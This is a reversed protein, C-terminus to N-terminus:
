GAPPKLPLLWASTDRLSSTAGAKNASREVASTASRLRPDTCHDEFLKIQRAQCVGGVYNSILLCAGCGDNVRLTVRILVNCEGGFMRKLDLVYEKRMEVGIEDGPM